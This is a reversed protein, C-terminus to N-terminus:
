VSCLFNIVHTLMTDGVRGLLDLSGLRGDQNITVSKLLTDDGPTIQFCSLWEMKSVSKSQDKDCEQLFAIQCM